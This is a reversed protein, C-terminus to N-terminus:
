SWKRIASAQIIQYASPCVWNPLMGDLVNGADLELGNYVAFEISESGPAQVRPREAM